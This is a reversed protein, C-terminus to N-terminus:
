DEPSIKYHQLQFGRQRGTKYLLRAQNLQEPADTAIMIIREYRANGEPWTLSMNILWQSGQPWPDNNCGILIPAHQYSNVNPLCGHGIFSDARFHWLERDLTTKDQTDNVLIMTNKQAYLAEEALQCAQRYRTQDTMQQLIYFDIQGQM